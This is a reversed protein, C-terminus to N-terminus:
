VAGWNPGIEVDVPFPMEKNYVDAATQEMTEKMFQAGEKADEARFEALLSDHVPIRVHVGANVLRIMAHLNIDNAISQPYFSYAEKIVDKRNQPTILPVRHHRGFPTILDKGSLVDLKVRKQFEVVGPILGFFERYYAEAVQPALGYEEAVSFATRGYPLGFVVAKARIRREKRAAPTVDWFDHYFRAGTENHIDRELDSLVSFLYADGSEVALTRLEITRYDAQVFLNGEEPVFQGRIRDGRTINQLNPNRSSLRGHTTGHILFSAYIRGNRDLRERIGRVYTSEQKFQKKYELLDTCLEIVQARDVPDLQNGEPGIAMELAAQIEEAQTNDVQVHLELLARKIQQWSRPNDIWRNLSMMLRALLEDYEAQLRLNYALDLKVGEQEVPMLTNSVNVLHEHLGTLGEARLRAEWYDELLWTGVCDQGNYIYLDDRSCSGYDTKTRLKRKFEAKWNPAGLHETGQYELSHIGKREDCAYSALMTDFALTGARLWGLDSKGNQAGIHPHRNLMDVLHQKVGPHQLAREGIVVVAGPRYSFGVCLLNEPRDFDEDKEKGTEIDITIRPKTALADLVVNANDPNNVISIEPDIWRVDGKVRVKAFDTVMSPFAGPQRMTAAPHFTAIVKVGPFLPSEHGQGVRLKTVGDTTRLITKAASNGLALITSPSRSKVEAILRPLCCGIETATPTRNEKDRCLVTNTVFIRSRELKNHALVTDLLKGSQGTFPRGRRAEDRGPAEGIIVLEARDPGDSPVYVSEETNLPCSECLALPHRRQEMAGPSTSV